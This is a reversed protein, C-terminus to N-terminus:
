QKSRLSKESDTFFLFLLQCVKEWDQVMAITTVPGIPRSWEKINKPVWGRNVFIRTRDFYTGSATPIEGMM